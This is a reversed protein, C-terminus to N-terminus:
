ENNNETLPLRIERQFIGVKGSDVQGAFEWGKEGLKNLDEESLERLNPAVMYKYKKLKLHEGHAWTAGEQFARRIASLTCPKNKVKDLYEATAKNLDKYDM